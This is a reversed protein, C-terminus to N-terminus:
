YGRVRLGRVGTGIGEYGPVLVEYRPVLLRTGRITYERVGASNGDYWSDLVEYGTM